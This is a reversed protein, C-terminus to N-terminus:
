KHIATAMVVIVDYCDDDSGQAWVHAGFWHLGVFSVLKLTSSALIIDNGSKINLLEIQETASIFVPYTVSSCVPFLVMAATCDECWCFLCKQKEMNGVSAEFIEGIM